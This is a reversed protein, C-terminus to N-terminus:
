PKALLRNELLNKCQHVCPNCNGKKRLHDRLIDKHDFATKETDLAIALEEPTFLRVTKADSGAVPTQTTTCFYTIEVSHQRPDRGPDGHVGILTLDNVETIQLEEQIERLFAARPSEYEVHGGFLALGEPKKGREILAIKGQPCVYVIGAVTLVPRKKEPIFESRALSFGATMLLMVLFCYGSKRNM